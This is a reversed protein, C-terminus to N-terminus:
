LFGRVLTIQGAEYVLEVVGGEGFLELAENCKIDLVPVGKNGAMAYAGTPNLSLVVFGDTSSDYSDFVRDYRAGVIFGARHLKQNEVQIRGVAKTKGIAKVKTKSTIM